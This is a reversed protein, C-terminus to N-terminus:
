KVRWLRQDAGAQRTAVTIAHEAARRLLVRRGWRISLASPAYLLACLAAVAGVVPWAAYLSAPGHHVETLRGSVWTFTPMQFEKLLVFV